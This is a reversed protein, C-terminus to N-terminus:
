VAATYLGDQGDTEEKGKPGKPGKPGKRGVMVGDILRLRRM